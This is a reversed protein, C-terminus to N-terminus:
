DNDSWETPNRKANSSVLPPQAQVLVFYMAGLESYIIRRLTHEAYWPQFIQLVLSALFGFLLSFVAILWEPTSDHKLARLAKAIEELQSSYDVTVPM